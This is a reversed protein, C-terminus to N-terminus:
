ARRGGEIYTGVKGDESRRFLKYERYTETVPAPTHTCVDFDFLIPEVTVPVPVRVCPTLNPLEMETIDGNDAVLIAGAM